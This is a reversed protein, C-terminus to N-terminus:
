NILGDLKTFRVMQWALSTSEIRRMVERSNNQSLVNLSGEWLINRDIIALKRHHSETYIVQVGFHQLVAVAQTAESCLYNDHESPDRTNIVIRVGRTKLKQLVPLFM